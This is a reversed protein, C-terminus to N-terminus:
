PQYNQQPPLNEKWYNKQTNQHRKEGRCSLSSDREMQVITGLVGRRSEVRLNNRKLWQKRGPKFMGLLGKGGELRGRVWLDNKKWANNSGIEKIKRGPV